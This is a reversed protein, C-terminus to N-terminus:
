RTKGTCRDGGPCCLPEITARAIITVSRAERVKGRGVAIQAATSVNGRGLRAPDVMGVGDRGPQHYAIFIRLHSRFALLEEIWAGLLSQPVIILTPRFDVAAHMATRDIAAMYVLAGCLRTKRLGTDDALLGGGIPGREQTLMWALGSVQWGTLGLDPLRTVFM